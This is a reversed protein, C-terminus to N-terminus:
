GVSSRTLPCSKNRGGESLGTKRLEWVFETNKCERLRGTSTVSIKDAVLPHGSVLAEM